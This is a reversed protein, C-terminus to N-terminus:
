FSAELVAEEGAVVDEFSDEFFFVLDDRSEFVGGPAEGAAAEYVVEEGIYLKEFAGSDQLAGNRM